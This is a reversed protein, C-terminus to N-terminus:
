WLFPVLRARSTAFDRYADGLAAVLAREEIRIRYTLAAVVLATSAAAGAWNGVMLGCGAVALLLGTYSPHRLSRYPGRDIVPQDESTALVLTFYRGLALFSWWRLLLGLWAAAAGLAFIWVGGGVVADPLVARGVPLLLIAGVFMMRFVLEARLDIRTSGRRVRITRSLEGLVFAGATVELVLRATNAQEVYPLLV